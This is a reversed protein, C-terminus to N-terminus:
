KVTIWDVKDANPLVPERNIGKTFTSVYPSLDLTAGETLTFEPIDFVSANSTPVGAPEIRLRRIKIPNNGFTKTVKLSAKNSTPDCELMAWFKAYYIPLIFKQKSSIIPAIYLTQSPVDINSGALVDTIFWTVPSTMYTGQSPNWLNMCWTFGLRLHVLQIHKMIDLGDAIYGAQIATMGTYSELYFPWCQSAPQDKGQKKEIDWVKNAYYDGTHSLSTKFQSVLSARVVDMPYIDGWGCYRSLFQGALQGTFMLDDRKNSGDLDCGHAFFRGNWLMRMNAEYTENFQKNYERVSEDDGVARALVAAARLTTLYVGAMYSYVEPNHYDDYTTPGSPIQVGNKMQSKLFAMAKKVREINTKVYDIDGTQNYDKALQIIWGGANDLMWGGETPAPGGKPAIGVYLMGDFHLIYGSEHQCDAFRQMENRDLETFFKQYFPHASIRQDMTGALGAMSGEMVTFDGEKNLITNTFMIYTSNILKFKLWDPLSSKLIPEQWERTQTLIRARNEAAYAVLSDINDFFNHYYRGYDCTKWYSGPKATKRDIKFEPQHWVLMFRVTKTEGKKLDASVAVASSMPPGDPESLISDSNAGFSGTKIFKQWASTGDETKYAPLVSVKGGACPKAVIAIQSNYNQFTAKNPKFPTTVHQQIGQWNGIKYSSAKTPVPTLPPWYEAANVLDFRNDEFIQGDMGDVNKPDYIGRGIFDEWSLAISVQAPKNKATLTVDFWAVPLSSDKINHPVLGSYATINVKVNNSTGTDDISLDAIPFLGTYTTHKIGPMGLRVADERILRRCTVKGGSKEWLSFFRNTNIEKVVRHTNNLAVRSFTGDPAFEFYGVGMGGLAVGSPGKHDKLALYNFDDKGGLNKNDFYFTTNAKNAGYDAQSLAQSISLLSIITILVPLFMFAKM